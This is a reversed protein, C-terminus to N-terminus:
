GYLTRPNPPSECGGLHKKPEKKADFFFIMPKTLIKYKM